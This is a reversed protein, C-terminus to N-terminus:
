PDQLAAAMFGSRSGGQLFFITNKGQMAGLEKLEAKFAEKLAEKVQTLTKGSKLQQKISAEEIEDPSPKPAFTEMNKFAMQRSLLERQERQWHLDDEVSPDVGHRGPVKSINKLALASTEAEESQPLVKVTMGPNEKTLKGIESVVGTERHFAYQGSRADSAGLDCLVPKQYTYPRPRRDVDCTGIDVCAFQTKLLAELALASSALNRRNRALEQQEASATEPLTRSYAEASEQMNMAKSPEM